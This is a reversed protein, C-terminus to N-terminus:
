SVGSRSLADIRQELMRIRTDQSERLGTIWDSLIKSVIWILGFLTVNMGLAVIAIGEATSM